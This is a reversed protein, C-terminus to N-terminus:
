YGRRDREAALREVLLSYVQDAVRSVDVEPGPTASAASVEPRIPVGVVTDPGSQSPGDSRTEAARQAVPALTMTQPGAPFVSDFPAYSDAYVVLPAAGAAPSSETSAVHPPETAPGPTPGPTPGRLPLNALPPAVRPALAAADSRAALRVVPLEPRGAGTRPQPASDELRVGAVAPPAPPEARSPGRAPLAELSVGAQLQFPRGILGPSHVAPRATDRRSTDSPVASVVPGAGQGSRDSGAEQVPPAASSPGGPTSEAIPFGPQGIPLKAEPSAGPISQPEPRSDPAERFSLPEPPLPSAIAASAHDEVPSAESRSGSPERFLFGEVAVDDSAIDQRAESVIPASGSEVPWRASPFAAGPPLAFDAFGRGAQQFPATDAPVWRRVLDLVPLRSMREAREFVRLFPATRILGPADGYRRWITQALPSLEAM